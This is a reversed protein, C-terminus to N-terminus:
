SKEAGGPGRVRDARAIMDDLTPRWCDQRHRLIVGAQDPACACRAERLAKMALEAGMPSLPLVNELNTGDSLENQAVADLAESLANVPTKTKVM